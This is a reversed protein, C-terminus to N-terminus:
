FYRRYGVGTCFGNFYIPEGPLKGASEAIGTSGLEIFYSHGQIGPDLFFEFGLHGYGGLVFKEESINSDPFLFQLGGEGYFRAFGSILGTGGLFGIRSAAYPQWGDLESFVVDGSARVAMSQKLFYPSTLNLGLGFDGNFQHLQFGAALGKEGGWVLTLSLCGAIGIRHAANM